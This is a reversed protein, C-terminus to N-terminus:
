KIYGEAFLDTYMSQYPDDVKFCNRVKEDSHICDYEVLGAMQDALELNIERM